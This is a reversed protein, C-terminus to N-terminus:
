EFLRAAHMCMILPGITYPSQKHNQASMNVLLVLMCIYYDLFLKQLM